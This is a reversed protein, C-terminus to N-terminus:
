RAELAGRLDEVLDDPDEIGVSLRVTGPPIGVTAREAASLNQHSALHPLSALSEVGGLSAAEVFLELRRVLALAAADGGPVCFSLVGGTDDLLDRALAHSPHSALGPYLVREVAPHAELFAAIRRAGDSHARMRLALTKVGREVLFAVGPDMCGGAKARWGAVPGMRERSGAAVGGVLDSHGGLYKTASHVVVDAGLALPRQLIPTAFTADVLVRAGHARAARAISPLDAVKLTPNALSEVLVLRTPPALVEDRQGPDDLDVLALEAGLRPALEALLERTGGYVQRDCAVRDGREVMSLLAAHLAAMGSAFSLAREAGELAAIRAELRELTPNTERTYLLAEAQAGSGRLAYVQDDALFTSSREIPTVVGPSSATARYGAQVCRTALRHVPPSPPPPM